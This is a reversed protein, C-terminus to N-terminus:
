RSQASATDSTTVVVKYAQHSSENTLPQQFVSTDTTSYRDSNAPNVTLTVTDHLLMKIQGLTPTVDLLAHSAESGHHTAVLVNQQTLRSPKIHCAQQCLGAM